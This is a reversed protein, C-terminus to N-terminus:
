RQANALDMTAYLFNRTGDIIESRHKGYPVHGDGPWVTEEATLGAKRANTITSKAWDYPVIADASGHFNLTPPDGKAPGETIAAGSLSVAARVKSSHGANGSTGVSEIGFAVNYATIGGASSGAIAIRNVDIGYTTAYRRLFRIAAQADNKAMQIAPICQDTFPACGGSSLRYDISVNVFGKKAFAKAQDVIEVSTRTGTRFSGGHVWVIAPRKTVDDGAPEYVDLKLVKTTGTLDQAQGFTIGTTTEVNAFVDDRYRLPGSGSPTTLHLQCGALLAACVVVVAIRVAKGM